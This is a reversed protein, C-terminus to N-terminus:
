LLRHVLPLFTFDGDFTLIISFSVAGVSAVSTDNIYSQLGSFFENTKNSSVDM